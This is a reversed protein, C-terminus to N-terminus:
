SRNPTPHILSDTRLHDKIQEASERAGAGMGQIAAALGAVSAHARELQRRGLPLRVLGSRAKAVRLWYPSHNASRM